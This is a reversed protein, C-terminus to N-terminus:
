LCQTGQAILLTICSSASIGKFTELEVLKSMNIYKYLIIFLYNM